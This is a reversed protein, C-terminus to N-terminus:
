HSITFPIIDFVVGLPGGVGISLLIYTVSSQLLNLGDVYSFSNLGWFGCAMIMGLCLIISYTLRSLKHIITTNTEDQSM